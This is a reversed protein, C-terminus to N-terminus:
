APPSSLFPEVIDGRLLALFFEPAVLQAGATLLPGSRDSFTYVRKGTKLLDLAL